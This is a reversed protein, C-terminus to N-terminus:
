TCASLGDKSVQYTATIDDTDKQTVEQTGLLEACREQEEKLLKRAEKLEENAAVVDGLAEELSERLVASEGRLRSLTQVSDEARQKMADKQQEAETLKTSEIELRQKLASVVSQRQEIDLKLQELENLAQGQIERCSQLKKQAFKVDGRARELRGRAEEVNHELQTLKSELAQDEADLESSEEELVRLVVKLMERDRVKGNVLVALFGNASQLYQLRLQWRAAVVRMRQTRTQQNEVSKILTKKRRQLQNVTHRLLSVRSTLAGNNAAAIQSKKLKLDAIRAEVRRMRALQSRYDAMLMHVRSYAITVQERFVRTESHYKGIDHLVSGIKKLQASIHVEYQAILMFIENQSATLGNQVRDVELSWQKLTTEQEAHVNAYESYRVQLREVLEDYEDAIEGIQSRSSQYRSLAASIRSTNSSKSGMSVENPSNLTTSKAFTDNGEGEGDFVPTTTDDNLTLDAGPLDLGLGATELGDSSYPADSVANTERRIGGCLELIRVFAVWVASVHDELGAALGTAMGSAKGTSPIHTNADNRKHESELPLHQTTIDKEEDIDQLPPHASTDDPDSVPDTMHRDNDYNDDDIALMVDEADHAWLWRDYKTPPIMESSANESNTKGKVIEIWMSNGKVFFPDESPISLDSIGRESDTKQRTKEWKQMLMVHRMSRICQFMVTSLAGLLGELQAAQGKSLRHARLLEQSLKTLQARQTSTYLSAGLRSTLQPNTSLTASLSQTVDTVIDSTDRSRPRGGSRSVANGARAVNVTSDKTGDPPKPHVRNTKTRATHTRISASKGLQPISYENYSITESPSTSESHVHDGAAGANVLMQAKKTTLSVEGPGLASSRNGSEPINLQSFAHLAPSRLYGAYLQRQVHDLHVPIHSLPSLEPVSTAADPHTAAYRLPDSAVMAPVRRISSTNTYQSETSLENNNSADGDSPNRSARITNMADVDNQSLIKIEFPALEVLARLQESLGNLIADGSTSGTPVSLRHIAPTGLLPSLDVIPASKLAPPAYQLPQFPQTVAPIHSFDQLTIDHTNADDDLGVDRHSYGACTGLVLLDEPTLSGQLISVALDLTTKSWGPVASEKMESVHGSNVAGRRSAYYKASQDRVYSLCEEDSVTTARAANQTVQCLTTFIGSLPSILIQQSEDYETNNRTSKQHTESSILSESSM